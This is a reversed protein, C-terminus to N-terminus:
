FTDEDLSIEELVPYVEVTNIQHGKFRRPTKAFTGRLPSCLLDVQSTDPAEPTKWASHKTFATM